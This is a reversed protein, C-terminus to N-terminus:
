ADFEGPRDEATERPIRWESVLEPLPQAMLHGVFANGRPTTRYLGFKEDYVILRYDTLFKVADRVAPDTSRVITEACYAELLARMTLTNPLRIM